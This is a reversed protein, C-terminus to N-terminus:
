GLAPQGLAAGLGQIFLVVGLVKPMHKMGVLDILVPANIAVYCGGFFGYIGVHIAMWWFVNAFTFLFINIGVVLCSLAMLRYRPIINSDGLFGILIRGCLDCIGTISVLYAKEYKTVGKLSASLPMFLIFNFHGFFCLFSVMVFLLVVYNRLVSFDLLNKCFAGCRAGINEKSNGVMESQDVSQVVASHLSDVSGALVNEMGKSQNETDAFLRKRVEVKPNNLEDAESSDGSQFSKAQDSLEGNPKDLLEVREPADQSQKHIQSYFATPRYLLGCAIVNFYMAGIILLTGKLAYTDLLLQLLPPLAFQGLSAGSLALGNALSRRKSFYHGIMVLGNGFICANGIGTFLCIDLEKRPLQLKQQRSIINISVTQIWILVLLIDTM